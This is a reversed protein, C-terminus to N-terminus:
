KKESVRTVFLTGDKETVNVKHGQKQMRKQLSYREWRKLGQVKIALSQSQPCKKLQEALDAVFKAGETQRTRVPVDSERVFNVSIVKM